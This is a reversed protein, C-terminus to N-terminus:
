QFTDPSISRGRKVLRKSLHYPTRKGDYVNFDRFKTNGNKYSAVNINVAGTDKEDDYNAISNKNIFLSGTKLSTCSVSPVFIGATDICALETGQKMFHISGDTQLLIENVLLGNYYVGWSADGNVKVIGKFSYSNAPNVVTLATQSAVTKDIDLNGTIVLDKRIM